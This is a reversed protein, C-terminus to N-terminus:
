KIIVLETPWHGRVAADVFHQRLFAPNTETCLRVNAINECIDSVQNIARRSFNLLARAGVKQSLVLSDQLDVPSDSLTVVLDIETNEQALVKAGELLAATSIYHRIDMLVRSIGLLSSIAREDRVTKVGVYVVVLILTRTKKLTQNEGKIM